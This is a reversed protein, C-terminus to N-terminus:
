NWSTSRKRPRQTYRAMVGIQRRTAVDLPEVYASLLDSVRVNTNFPLYTTGTATTHLKITVDGDIGFHDTM